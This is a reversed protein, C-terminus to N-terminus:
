SDSSRREASVSLGQFELLQVTKHAKSLHIRLSYLLLFNSSMRILICLFDSLAASEYRTGGYVRVGYTFREYLDLSEM